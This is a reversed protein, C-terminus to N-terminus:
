LCLDALPNATVRSIQGSRDLLLTNLEGPYRQRYIAACEECERLHDAIQKAAAPDMPVKGTLHNHFAAFQSQYEHCILEAAPASPFYPLWYLGAVL